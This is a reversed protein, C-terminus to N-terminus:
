VSAVAGCFKALVGIASRPFIPVLKAALLLGIYELRYRVKKWAQSMRREFGLDRQRFTTRVYRVTGAPDRPPMKHFADEENTGTINTATGNRFTKKATDQSM